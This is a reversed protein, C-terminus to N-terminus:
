RFDAAYPLVGIAATARAAACNVAVFPRKKQGTAAAEHLRAPSWSKARAASLVPRPVPAVREILALVARM